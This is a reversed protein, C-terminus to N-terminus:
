DKLSNKNESIKEKKNDKLQKYYAIKAKVKDESKEILENKMVDTPVFSATLSGAYLVSNLIEIIVQSNIDATRTALRIRTLSNGYKKEFLEMVRNAVAEEQNMAMARHEDIILEMTKALSNFNNKDRYDEIYKVTELKLRFATQKRESM